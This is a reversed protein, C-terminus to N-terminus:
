IESVALFMSVVKLCKQLVKGDEELNVDLGIPRITDEKGKKTTLSSGGSGQHRGSYSALALCAGLAILLSEPVHKNPKRKWLTSKQIRSRRKPTFPIISSGGPDQFPSSPPYIFVYHEDPGVDSNMIASFLIDHITNVRYNTMLYSESQYYPKGTGINIHPHSFVIAALKPFVVFAQAYFIVTEKTRDVPEREPLQIKL